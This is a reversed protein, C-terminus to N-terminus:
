GEKVLPYGAGVWDIIGGDMHYVNFGAAHLIGAGLVSGMGSACYILILVSREVDLESMRQKLTALPMNIAGEVHGAKYEDPSRVDVIQLSRDSEILQKAIAVSVNQFKPVYIATITESSANRVVVIKEPPTAFGPVDEFSVVYVGTEITKCIQGEGIATGNLYIKGYHLAILGATVGPMKLPTMNEIILVGTQRAYTGVVTSGEQKLEVEIPEPSNYEPYGGFSVTHSGLPLTVEATGKGFLEGDVYIEGEVPETAIRLVASKPIFFYLAALLLSIASAIAAIKSARM